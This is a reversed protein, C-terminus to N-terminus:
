ISAVCSKNNSQSSGYTTYSYITLLHGKRLCFQPTKGDILMDKLVHLLGIWYSYNEISNEDGSPRLQKLMIEALAEAITTHNYRYYQDAGRKTLLAKGIHQFFPSIVRSMRGLLFRLTGFNKVEPSNPDPRAPPKPSADSSANADTLASPTVAASNEAVSLEASDGNVAPVEVSPSAPEPGVVLNLVPDSSTSDKLRTAHKWTEPVVKQLLIEEKLSAGLLPGLSQILRIYYDSFYMSNFGAPPNRHSFPSGQISATLNAVLSQINVFAKAFATGQALTDVGAAERAERSVFPAFFSTNHDHKAFPALVDAAAQARKLLSPIVVYPKQEALLAIVNQLNRSSMGDGFNAPLSQSEALDLVYEIGGKACFEARVTGNNLVTVLFSAVSTIYPAMSTDSSNAPSKPAQSIEGADHMEVDSEADTAKGKGKSDSDKLGSDAAILNGAADSSWLKAGAKEKEAKTKCLYGVRAVMDLIANIIASKLPPHHRALEDFTSGLTSPLDINVDMCKVHEPSEFIEFFTELARSARFMKMGTNNLCLASFAQPVINITEQTPMIGRALPGERPAQLMALTPPHPATDVPIPDTDDEEDDSSAASSDGDDVQEPEPNREKEVPTSVPPMEIKSNTVAELFGKSLGAEAIIAFSTPENNIFGNLIGVANTWVVSGFCRGNGIIQRLSRLLASSDILNRLLRDFNGGYSNASSMMHHIFKFLWKLVQQHFFPIEYDIIPSRHDIPMGNGAAAAEAAAQTEYVILDSVRDLGNANVLTQFAERASYVVNDLFSLVKPQYRRAVSTRLGLIEIMIPILGASVLGEATRPYQCLSTMLSFLANRWQDKDTLQNGSDEEGMEAVAKRIVYLMVGHNITTNLAKCVDQFKTSIGAIAELASLALTQMYTSVPADGDAPPHVLDAVQFIFQLRKPEDSDQKMVSEIFQPEQYVYAMNTVALIRIALAQQRTELSSTLAKAIRIKTFLEYQVEQPLGSGHERMLTYIDTSRLKASSIEITKANQRPSEDTPMTASRPLTPPSEDTAPSRNGRQANPGLNSTRRVPTPTVPTASVAAPAPRPTNNVPEPDATNKPYYTMKIDGWEEWNSQSVPSSAHDSSHRPGKAGSSVGSGGKILSVLDNAYVVTTSSKQSSPLNFYARDKEKGKTGPTTPNPTMPQVPELSTNVTKSFPLALQVVKNLDINYHEALLHKGSRASGVRKMASNYRQALQSCLLLNSELLSLSTTNFLNSLHSSSSYISRNGCNELLMRSFNLVAEILQRDGDKGYGLEELNHVETDGATAGVMSELMERGFEVMQPGDALKYTV